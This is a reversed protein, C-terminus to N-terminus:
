SKMGLQQQKYEKLAGNLDDFLHLKGDRLIAATDCYQRITQVNHSVMIVTATESRERFADSYKKRFRQDGTSIAEDVLYCDFECALSVALNFRSRMGASYTKLPMDFYDGLEAFDQAFSETYRPDEGYIRAIFRANERGTLSGQYGGAYGLPWSVRGQKHVSGTDPPEVGGIIRILTSKGVGNLGLIGISRNSPFTISVDNLVRKRGSRVKYSKSIDRLEIV